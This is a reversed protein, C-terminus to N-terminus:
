LRLLQDRAIGGFNSIKVIKGDKTKFCGEFKGYITNFQLKTVFASLDRFNNSIPEFTLDVMNETDQIIWKKSLGFPQTMKVPPLPTYEGEYFLSNRNSFEPDPMNSSINDLLFSIQKGNQLGAAYIIQNQTIYGYYARNIFFLGEGQEESFTCSQTTKTKEFSITGHIKLTALYSASCRRRSKIPVCQTVEQTQSDSFHGTFAAQVSPRISDGKLNFIISFRDRKHDWSVRIYRCKNFSACFGQEMNHPIFRRRPGMLSKYVYKRGTEENWLSVEAIGYIKADFFIVSAIFPGYKFNFTLSSKIRFNSIFSPLPFGGFPTRLGRIDLKSIHGSFTGFVPKGNKVLSQPLDVLQRSYM